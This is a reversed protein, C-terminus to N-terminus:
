AADRKQAGDTNCQPNGPPESPLADAQLTPSGPETGPNPLDGPSPFPLGSWYEQRFIGHVSSGPLSCDMRYCLTPCSQAVECVLNCYMDITTVLWQNNRILQDTKKKNSLPMEKHPYEITQESVHQNANPIKWTKNIILLAERFIWTHGYTENAKPLYRPTSNSAWQALRYKVKQSAALCYSFPIASNQIEM